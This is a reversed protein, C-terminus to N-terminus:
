DISLREGLLSHWGLFLIRKREQPLDGYRTVGFAQLALRNLTLRESENLPEYDQNYVVSPTEDTIRNIQKGSAM